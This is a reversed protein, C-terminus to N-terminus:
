WTALGVTKELILVADSVDITGDPAPKGNKLPGVDGRTLEAATPARVGVALQLALLADSIGVKGDGDLDGTSLYNYRETDAVASWDVNGGILAVNGSPLLTATFNFRPTTMSGAVSWSGTAPDYLEAIGFTTNYDFTGGSVLVKGDALLTAVHLQRVSEMAGVASWSDLGPDYIEAGALNRNTNDTGGAVLVRGDALLTASHSARLTLMAAAPSWSDTQPNYLVASNVLYSGGAVLVKGNPLLSATYGNREDAMPTAGAWSNTAPYYRDVLTFIGYDPDLSGIILVSGDSLLTATHYSHPNPMVSVQQTLWSNSVPDYIEASDLCGAFGYGGAILVLGNKLLTASHSGRATSLAGASSWSDTAPDYLEASALPAYNLDSGGVVLVKGNPLLTATHYQRPTGLPAAKSFSEIKPAVTIGFAPLAQSAEVNSATIVLNAYSGATTPTGSLGGTAPDFSLGPPVTGAISFSSAYTAVPTFSSYPIGVMALTVPLGTITPPPLKITISFTLQASGASNAATVVINNYVGAGTLLGQRGDITAYSVIGTSSDTDTYLAINPPLNNSVTVSTANTTAIVFGSYSGGAVGTTM